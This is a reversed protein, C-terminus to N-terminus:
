WKVHSYFCIKMYIHIYIHTNKITPLVHATVGKLGRPGLRWSNPDSPRPQVHPVEGV